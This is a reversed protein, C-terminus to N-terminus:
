HPNSERGSYPKEKPLGFSFIIPVYSLHDLADTQYASPRLNSDQRGLKKKPPALLFFRSSACSAACRNQSGASAPELGAKWVGKSMGLMRIEVALIGPKWGPSALEVRAPHETKRKSRGFSFVPVIARIPLADTKCASPQPNSDRENWQPGRAAKKRGFSLLGLLPKWVRRICTRTRGSTGCVVLCVPGYSLPLATPQLGVRRHNSGVRDLLLSPNYSLPVSCGTAIRFAVPEFGTLGARCAELHLSLGDTHLAVELSTENPSAFLSPRLAITQNRGEGGARRHSM